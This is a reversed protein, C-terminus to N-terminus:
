VRHVEVKGPVIYANEDIVPARNIWFNYGREKVTLNSDVRTRGSFAISM